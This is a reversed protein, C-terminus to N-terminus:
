LKGLKIKEIRKQQQYQILMTRGKTLLLDDEIGTDRADEKTVVDYTDQVKNLHRIKPRDNFQLFILLLNQNLDLRQRQLCKEITELLRLGFVMEVKSVVWLPCFSCFPCFLLITPSFSKAM